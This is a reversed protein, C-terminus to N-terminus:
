KIIVRHGPQGAGPGAVTLLYVGGPVNALDLELRQAPPQQVLYRLRGHVDTIRVEIAQEVLYPFEIILRENFPNPYAHFAPNTGSPDRTIGDDTGWKGSGDDDGPPTEGDGDPDTEDVVDEVPQTCTGICRDHWYVTDTDSSCCNWTIKANHSKAKGSNVLAQWYSPQVFTAWLGQSMHTTDWWWNTADNTDPWVGTDPAAVFAITGKWQATGYTNHMASLSYNDNWTSGNATGGVEITTDQGPNVGWIEWYTQPNYGIRNGTLCSYVDGTFEIKQVIHGGNPSPNDVKFKVKWSAGDCSAVTEVETITVSSFQALVPSLAVSIFVTVASLLLHRLPKSYGTKM